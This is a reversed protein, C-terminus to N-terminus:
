GQKGIRRSGGPRTRIARLGNCVAHLALADKRNREKLWMAAFQVGSRTTPNIIGPNEALLSCVGDFLFATWATTETIDDYCAILKGHLEALESRTAPKRPQKQTRRDM